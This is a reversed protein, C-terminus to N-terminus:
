FRTVPPGQDVSPFTWSEDEPQWQPILDLAEATVQQQTGDVWRVLLREPRFTRHGKKTPQVIVSDLHQVLFARRQSLDAQQWRYRTTLTTPLLRVAEVQRAEIESRQARLGEIIPGLDIRSVKGALYDARWAAIERDIEETTPGADVSPTIPEQAANQADQRAMVLSVVASELWTAKMALNACGGAQIGCRYEGRASNGVMGVGCRGCVALNSLVHRRANVGAPRQTKVQQAARFTAVDVLAPYATPGVEQGQYVRIGAYGARELVRGVNAATWRGGAVTEVKEEALWIRISNLSAGEARRRFMEAVVKAEAPAPEWQRSYGFCRHRGGQPLGRSARQAKARAGREGARKAEGADNAAKYRAMMQGDATALNDEGSVVTAIRVGTKESLTIWAELELPRRTLRSNSYSIVAGIRGAEAEALLADYEPRAKVKGAASVDNDSYIGVVEWGQRDALAQCDELQRAVGLGEGQTDKSIRTYIATKM